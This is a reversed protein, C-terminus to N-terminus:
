LGDPRNSLWKKFDARLTSVTRPTPAIIDFGGDYPAFVARVNPSVWICRASREQAIGLVAQEFHDDLRDAVGTFVAITSADDEADEPGRFAEKLPVGHYTWTPEITFPLAPDPEYVNAMMYYPGEAGMLATILAHAREIVIARDKKSEPYRKGKPMSHFRVWRDPLSSRLDWSVPAMSPFHKNWYSTVRDM